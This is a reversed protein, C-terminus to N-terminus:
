SFLMATKFWLPSDWDMAFLFKDGVTGYGKNMEAGLSALRAANVTSTMYFDAATSTIVSRRM